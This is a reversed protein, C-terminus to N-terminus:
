RGMASTAALGNPSWYISTSEQTCYCCSLYLNTCPMRINLTPLPFSRDGTCLLLLPHRCLCRGLSCSPSHNNGCPSSMLSLLQTPSIAPHVPRLQLSLMAPLHGPTGTSPSMHPLSPCLLSGLPWQETRAETVEWCGQVQTSVREEGASEEGPQWSM